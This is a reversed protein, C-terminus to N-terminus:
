DQPTEDCTENPRDPHYSLTRSILEAMMVCVCVCVCACACACECVSV